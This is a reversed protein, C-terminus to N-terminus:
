ETYPFYEKYCKSQILRRTLNVDLSTSVFDPCLDIGEGLAFCVEKEADTNAVFGEGMCGWKMCNNFVDMPDCSFRTVCLTHSASTLIEHCHKLARLTKDFTDCTDRFINVAEQCKENTQQVLHSKFIHYLVVLNEFKDPLNFPTEGSTATTLDSLHSKSGNGCMQTTFPYLMDESSCEFRFMAEQYSSERPHWPTMSFTFDGNRAKLHAWKVGDKTSITEEFLEYFKDESQTNSNADQFLSRGKGNADLFKIVIKNSTRIEFNADDSYISLWVTTM